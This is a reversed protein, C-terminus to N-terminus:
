KRSTVVSVHTRAPLKIVAVMRSLDWSPRVRAKVWSRVARRRESETQMRMVNARNERGLNRM